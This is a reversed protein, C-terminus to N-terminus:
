RNPVRGAGAAQVPARRVPEAQAGPTPQLPQGSAVRQMVQMAASARGYFSVLQGKYAEGYAKGLEQVKKMAAPGKGELMKQDATEKGGHIYTRYAVADTQGLTRWLGIAAVAAEMSSKAIRADAKADRVEGWAKRLEAPSGGKARLRVVRALALSRRAMASYVKEYARLNADAMQYTPWLKDSAPSNEDLDERTAAQQKAAGRFARAMDRLQLMRRLAQDKRSLGPLAKSYLPLGFAETFPKLELAGQGTSSLKGLTENLMHGATVLKAKSMVQTTTNVQGFFDRAGIQAVHHVGKPKNAGAGLDYSYIRHMIESALKPSEKKLKAELMYLWDADEYTGACHNATFLRLPLGQQKAEPLAAKWWDYVLDALKKAVVADETPRESENAKRKHVGYHIGGRGEGTSGLVGFGHVVFGMPTFLERMLAGYAQGLAKDTQARETLAAVLEAKSMDFSRAAEALEPRQQAIAALAVRFPASKVAALFAHKSNVTSINKAWNASGFDDVPMGVTSMGRMMGGKRIYKEAAEGLLFFRKGSPMSEDKIGMPFYLGVDGRKGWKSVVKAAALELMEQDVLTPEYASITVTNPEANPNPVGAVKYDPPPSWLDPVQARAAGAALLAVLVVKVIRPRAM